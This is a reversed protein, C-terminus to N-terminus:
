LNEYVFEEQELQQRLAQRARWALSKIQKATKKMVRAAEEYSAEEFYLLHLIDRQAPPLRLLAGLLQRKEEDRCLTQEPGTEGDPLLPEIESLPVSPARAQRRLHNLAKNRGIRFLYTRFAAEGRFHPRRALLEAFADEMLDEATEPSHVIGNLFTCLRDGYREVLEALGEQDGDLFRQYCIADQDM